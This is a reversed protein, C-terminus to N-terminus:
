KGKTTESSSIVGGKKADEVAREILVAVMQSVSRRESDALEKLEAKLEEEIFTTVTVKPMDQDSSVAIMM